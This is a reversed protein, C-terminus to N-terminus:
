SHGQCVRCFVIVMIEKKKEKRSKEKRKKEKRKKRKEEKKNQKRKTKKPKNKNMDVVTIIISLCCGYTQRNESVNRVLNLRM